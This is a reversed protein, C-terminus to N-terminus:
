SVAPRTLMAEAARLAEHAEWLQIRAKDLRDLCVAMQGAVTGTTRTEGDAGCDDDLATLAERITATPRIARLDGGVPALVALVVRIERDMEATDFDLGGWRLMPRAPPIPASEAVTAEVKAPSM